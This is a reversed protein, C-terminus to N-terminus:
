KSQQGFEKQLELFEEYRREKQRKTRNLTIEAERKHETKLWANGEELSLSGAVMLDRVRAYNNHVGGQLLRRRVAEEDIIFDADLSHDFEIIALEGEFGIIVQGDDNMEFYEITKGELDPANFMGKM